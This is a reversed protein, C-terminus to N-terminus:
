ARYAYRGGERDRNLKGNLHLGELVFEAASAMLGPSEMPGLGEIVDHLGDISSIGDLYDNSPMDDSVQVGWGEGIYDLVPEVSAMDVYSDFTKKVAVGLLRDILEGEADPEIGYELELKGGTSAAMAHLDSIRPVIEAENHRLARKEANALLTEYNSISVRVSVGSSQTVEPASRAAHTFQAVIEKMFQPIRLERGDRPALSIEGEVIKIEDELRYPYHTRIQSDFRDKLPTVIRGRSTYDEPNATAVVVIDLPLRVKHGKLQIDKEEMVNFLGVQVKEALDPLENITFLGRNSRPILGFHLVEEDSMYRGEALKVPDIEGLLDAMAVDPTALKEGYRQERGIWSVPLADGREHSLQKCRACVPAFPEDNIECGSVAPVSEDLLSVLSRAIRTKAQGREGLFVMHHGSLIANEVEPIVTDRYGVIGEFVDNGSALCAALNDRLEQRVSRPQYGSQKLEGLTAPKNTM